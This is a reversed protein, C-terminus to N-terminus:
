YLAVLEGMMWLNIVLDRARCEELLEDNGQEILHELSNQIYKALVAELVKLDDQDLNAVRVREDLPMDNILDSIIEDLPSQTHNNNHNMSKTFRKCRNGNEYFKQENILGEEILLQALTDVQISNAILLEKFSVLDNPILAQAM